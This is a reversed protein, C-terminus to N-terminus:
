MGDTYDIHQLCGKSNESEAGSVCKCVGVGVWRPMAGEANSEIRVQESSCDRERAHVNRFAFADRDSM